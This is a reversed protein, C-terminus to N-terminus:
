IQVFKHVCPLCRFSHKGKCVWKCSWLSWHVAMNMKSLKYWSEASSLPMSSQCWRSQLYLYAFMGQHGHPRSKSVSTELTVIGGPRHDFLVDKSFVFLFHEDISCSPNGSEALASNVERGSFWLGCLLLILLVCVYICTLCYVNAEKPSSAKIAFHHWIFHSMVLLSTLHPFGLVSM